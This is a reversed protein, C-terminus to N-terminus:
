APYNATPLTDLYARDARARELAAGVTPVFPRDDIVLAGRAGEVVVRKEERRLGTIEDLSLWRAPEAGTQLVVRRTTVAAFRLHWREYFVGYLILPIGVLLPLLLVGIVIHLVKARAHDARAFLVVREGKELPVACVTELLEGAALRAPRISPPEPTEALTV